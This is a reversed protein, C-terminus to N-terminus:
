ALRFFEFIVLNSTHVRRWRTKTKIVIKQLFVDIYWLPTFAQRMSLRLNGIFEDLGVFAFM